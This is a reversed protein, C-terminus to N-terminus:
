VMTKSQKGATIWYNSVSIKEKTILSTDDAYLVCKKPLLVYYISFLIANLVYGQPVGYNVYKIM